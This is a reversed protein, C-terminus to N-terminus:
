KSETANPLEDKNALLEAARRCDGLTPLPRANHWNQGRMEEPPPPCADGIPNTPDASESVIGAYDAFPKLAERLKGNEHQAEHALHWNEAALRDCETKLARFATWLDRMRSEAESRKLEHPANGPYECTELREIAALTDADM